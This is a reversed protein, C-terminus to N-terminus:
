KYRELMPIGNSQLQKASSQILSIQLIVLKYKWKQAAVGKWLSMCIAVKHKLPFFPLLSALRLTKHIHSHLKTTDALQLKLFFSLETNTVVLV